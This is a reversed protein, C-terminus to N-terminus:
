RPRNEVRSPNKHRELFEGMTMELLEPYLASKRDILYKLLSNRYGEDDDGEFAGAVDHGAADEKERKEMERVDDYECGEVTSWATAGLPRREVCEPDIVVLTPQPEFSTRKLNTSATQLAYLMLAATRHDVQRTMMLRMIEGLGMQVSDADELLSMTAEWRERQMNLNIEMNKRAWGMHFYCYKKNRLAPSGCQSGNIKIHQCRAVSKPYSSM